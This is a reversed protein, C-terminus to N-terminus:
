VMKLEFNGLPRQSALEFQIKAGLDIRLGLILESGLSLRGPCLIFRIEENRPKIKGLDSWFHVKKLGNEM